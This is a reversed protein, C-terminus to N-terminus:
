HAFSPRVPLVHPPPGRLSLGHLLLLEQLRRGPRRRPRWRTLPAQPPGADWLRWATALPARVFLALSRALQVVAAEGRWLWWGCLLGAILHAAAMGASLTSGDFAELLGPGPVAGATAEHAVHDVAGSHHVAYAHVASVPPEGATYPRERAASPLSSFFAHLFVQGVASAAVAACATRERGALWWGACTVLLLASALAPLPLSGGSMHAHGLGSVAVCVVAFLVARVFRLAPGAGM